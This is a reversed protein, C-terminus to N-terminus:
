YIIIKNSPFIRSFALALLPSAGLIALVLVTSWLEEYGPYDKRKTIHHNIGGIGYATTSLLFYATIFDKNPL